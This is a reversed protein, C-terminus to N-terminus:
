RGAKAESTSPSSGRVTGRRPSAARGRLTRTVAALPRPRRPNQPKASEAGFGRGFHREVRAQALSLVTTMVLYWISAVILLPIVAFNVSYILQASALLEKAGIVAALSTYKLNSIVQNGTAPIISRMAQPLIVKLMTTRAPVGLAAAAERQGKDVSLFGGRIIEAMYASDCFALGLLAAVLPTIVDNPDATFFIPGFPPIGISVTPFLSALNYWILLQVLAPVGRLAWVYFYAASSVLRNASEMMVAVLLGLLMGVFVVLFTLYITTWVGKLITPDFLYQGVLDWKFRPSTALIYAASAALYILVVAAIKSGLRRKPVIRRPLFGSDLKTNNDGYHHHEAM